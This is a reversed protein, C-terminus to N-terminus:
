NSDGTHQATLYHRIRSHLRQATDAFAQQREQEDAIAAPDPLGWHIHQAEGPFTPCVERARDCVTIVTDFPQDRVDEFGKAHQARIDIGLAAMTRVADPHITAPESGASSVQVQGASLHRMLGEAIQSRASNHTCVFLVRAPRAQAAGAVVPGVLAPHIARGAAGYATRLHDLDLSYYADRRDAESRRVAVLQGERLQRLHYSVLNLPQDLRSVLENVRYDGAALAQVLQWRLEHALLRIVAPPLEGSM